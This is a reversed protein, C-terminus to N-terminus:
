HQNVGCSMLLWLGRLSAGYDRYIPVEALTGDSDPPRDHEAVSVQIVVFKANRSMICSSAAITMSFAFEGCSM